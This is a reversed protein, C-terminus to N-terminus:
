KEVTMAHFRVSGRLEPFLSAHVIQHTMCVPVVICSEVAVAFLNPFREAGRVRADGLRSKALQLFFMAEVAVLFHIAPICLHTKRIGGYNVRLPDM